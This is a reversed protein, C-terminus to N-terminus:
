GGSRTAADGVTYPADPAMMDKLCAVGDDIMGNQNWEPKLRKIIPANADIFDLAIHSGGPTSGSKFLAVLQSGHKYWFEVLPMINM